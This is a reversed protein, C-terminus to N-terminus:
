LRVLRAGIASPEILQVAPPPAALRDPQEYDSLLVVVAVLEFCGMDAVKMRLNVALSVGMRIM